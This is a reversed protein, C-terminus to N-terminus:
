WVVAYANRALGAEANTFVPGDVPTGFVDSIRPAIFAPTDGLGLEVFSQRLWQGNAATYAEWQARDTDAVLPVWTIVETNSLARAKGVRKEYDPLTVFPFAQERDTAYSTVSIALSQAIGVKNNVNARSARVIENAYLDFQPTNSIYFPTSL